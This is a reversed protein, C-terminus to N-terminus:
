NAPGIFNINESELLNNNEYIGIEIDTSKGTLQSNDLQIIVVGEFTEGAPIVIEQGAVQIIGNSPSILQLELKKIENTKNLIKTNFINSLSNDDVQQFMTGPMRLLTTDTETKQVAFAVLVIFLM